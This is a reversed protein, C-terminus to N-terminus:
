TLESILRKSIETDSATISFSKGYDITSAFLPLQRVFYTCYRIQMSLLLIPEIIVLAAAQQLPPPESVSNVPAKGSFAPLRWQTWGRQKDDLCVFPAVRAIQTGVLSGGTATSSSLSLSSGSLDAM